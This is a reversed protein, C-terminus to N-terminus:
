EFIQGVGLLGIFILTKDIFRLAVEEENNAYYYGYEKYTYSIKGSDEDLNGGFDVAYEGTLYNITGVDTTGIKLVGEGNDTVTVPVSSITGTFKVTGPVILPILYGTQEADNSGLALDEIEILPQKVVEYKRSPYNGFPVEREVFIYDAKNRYIEPIQTENNARFYAM